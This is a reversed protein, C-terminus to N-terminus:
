YKRHVILLYNGIDHINNIINIVGVDSVTYEISPALRMGNIYVDLQSYNKSYNPVQYTYNNGVKLEIRYVTEVPKANAKLLEKFRKLGQVSLFKKM